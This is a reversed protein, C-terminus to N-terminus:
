VDGPSIGRTWTPKKKEEVPETVSEEVEVEAYKEPHLTRDIWGEAAEKTPFAELTVAEGDVLERVRWESSSYPQDIWLEREESM